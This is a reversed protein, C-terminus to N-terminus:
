DRAWLKLISEKLEELRTSQLLQEAVWTHEAQELEGTRTGAYEAQKQRSFVAFPNRLQRLRELYHKCDSFAVGGYMCDKDGVDELKRLLVEDTDTEVGDRLTVLHNRVIAVRNQIAQEDARLGALERQVRDREERLDRLQRGSETLWVDSISDLGFLDRPDSKAGSANLIGRMAEDVFVNREDRSREAQEHAKKSANREEILSERERLLSEEAASYLGLVSRMLKLANDKGMQKNQANSRHDRWNWLEQYRAEQDRTMWALLDHWTCRKGTGDEYGPLSEALTQRITQSYAAYSCDKPKMGLLTEIDAGQAARADSKGAFRRVVSWRAGKLHITVGVAGNPFREKIMDSAEAQGFTDEDLAYRILRCLSTKGVSHGVLQAGESDEADHHAQSVGWIINLGRSFSLDRIVENQADNSYIVLREIWLDPDENVKNIISTDSM